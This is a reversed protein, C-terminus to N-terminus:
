RAPAGTGLLRIATGGVAGLAGVILLYAGAGLFRFKLEAPFFVVAGLVLGALVFAGVAFARRPRWLDAALLAVVGALCATLGVDMHKVSGWFTVYQGRLGFFDMFSAGFTVAAAVIAVAPGVRAPAAAEADVALLRSVVAGIVTTAGVLQVIMGAAADGLGGEVPYWAFQGAAVLALVGGLVAVPPQPRVGDFAILGAALLICVAMTIDTVTSLQWVTADDRTNNELLSGVVFLAVGALGVLSARRM